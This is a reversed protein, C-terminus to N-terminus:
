QLDTWREVNSEALINKEILNLRETEEISTNLVVRYFYQNDNDSMESQRLTFRYFCFTNRPSHIRIRALGEHLKKLHAMLRQDSETVGEDRLHSIMKPLFREEFYITELAVLQEDTLM